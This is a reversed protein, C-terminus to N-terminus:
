FKRELRFSKMIDVFNKLPMSNLHALASSRGFGEADFQWHHFFCRVTNQVVKGKGLHTGMHPCYADLAAVKGDMGRFLVLEQGCFELAKVANLTLEKSPMAFYWGYAVENWNNFVPFDQIPQTSQNKVKYM